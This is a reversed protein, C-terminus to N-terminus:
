NDPCGFGFNTARESSIILENSKSLSCHLRSVNIRFKCNGFLDRLFSDVTKEDLRYQDISDWVWEKENSVAGKLAKSFPAAKQSTPKSIRRKSRFSTDSQRTVDVEARKIIGDVLLALNEASPRQDSPVLMPDVFDKTVWYSVPDHAIGAHAVRVADLVVTGDHFLDGANAHLKRVCEDQRQERYEEVSTCGNAIWIAAESFVCGLSWVDASAKVLRPDRRERSKYCRSEPSGELM